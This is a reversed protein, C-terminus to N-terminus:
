QSARNQVEQATIVIVSLQRNNLEKILGEEHGAGYQLVGITQRQETLMRSFNEATEGNRRQVVLRDIEQESEALLKKLVEPRNINQYPNDARSPAAASIASEPAPATLEELTDATDALLAGLNERGSIRALKEMSKLETMAPSAKALFIKLLDLLGSDFAGSSLARSGRRPNELEELRDQLYLYNRVVVKSEALTNENESGVVTLNKGKAKLVLPAGQLMIERDARSLEHNLDAVLNKEAKPDLSNKSFEGSLAETQRALKDRMQIKQALPTLKEGAVPGYLEGEMMVLGIDYREGLFALIQYIEGQARAASDNLSDEPDTGPNRHYQPILVVTGRSGAPVPYTKVEAVPLNKYTELDAIALTQSAQKSVSLVGAARPSSLPLKTLPFDTFAIFGAFSALLGCGCLIAIFKTKRM